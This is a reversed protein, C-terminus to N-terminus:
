TPRRAAADTPEPGELTYQYIEGMATAVPGMEIQVNEPMAEKAEALRQFVLQRAFYIDVKDQFVLTIVSIGYKTVSRMIDLGPLGRMAMEVPYTVFKEIELPSLGPATAVVEVQINTVDPFADIPLSLFSYIGVGVILALVILILTRQRLSFAIIKEIM